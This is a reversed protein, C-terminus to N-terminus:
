LMVTEKREDEECDADSGALLKIAATLHEACALRDAPSLGRYHESLHEMAKILVTEKHTYPASILDIPSIDLADAIVQLTEFTPNARGCEIEQLTSKGIGLKDAFGIVTYGLKTRKAKINSAFDQKLDM